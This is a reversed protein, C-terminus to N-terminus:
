DLAPRRDAPLEVTESHVGVRRVLEQSGERGGALIPGTHEGRGHGAEARVVGLGRVGDGGVRRVVEGVLLESQRQGHLHGSEDGDVRHCVAASGGGIHRSQGRVEQVALVLVPALQVLVGGVPQRVTRGIVDHGPQHEGGDQGAAQRAGLATLQDAPQERVGSGIPEERVVGQAIRGAAGPACLYEFWQQGVTEGLVEEGEAEGATRDRAVRGIVPAGHSGRGQERPIEDGIGSASLRRSCGGTPHRARHREERLGGAAPRVHTAAM